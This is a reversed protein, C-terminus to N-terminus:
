QIMRGLPCLNLQGLFRYGALCIVHVLGIRLIGQRDQIVIEERDLQCIRILRRSPVPHQNVRILRTECADPEPFVVVIVRCIIFASNPRFVVVM